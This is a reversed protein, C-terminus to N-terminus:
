SLELLGQTRDCVIEIRMVYSAEGMDKMEFNKSLFRKVDHLLCINNAFLLINDVYIVLITFKSGSVKMYIWRDITYETFRYSTITDNFKLFWQQSAQKLGYISKNM